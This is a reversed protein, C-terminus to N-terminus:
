RLVGKRRLASIADPELGLGRLLEDTHEGLAPPTALADQEVGAFKIPRGVIPVRGLVPHDVDVVMQRAKAQPHALAQAISLVPAHPVGHETFLRELEAMALRATRAEVLSVVDTRNALRAEITAFRPEAAAEDVGLARCLRAWFQDTICAIVIAGDSAPFVGYPVLSPHDSGQPAPDAGTFLALQALYGLMGILGDLLSIDILRGRGTAHRENLAGLIAIPGFIGGVLDGVPLGLKTPPGGRAGNISMAGSLAQIVIDFSPRDRLPGDMGFGSISCYILGPNAESLADYGLGLRDMVGPRFNEILVDSTSALRRVLAVGEPDKLDVALSKKGRNVSLFYHSVGHRLPPFGRTDDGGRPDEIKIVEAGLDGLVQAGFPGALVRSFDLVRIGALPGPWPRADTRDSM